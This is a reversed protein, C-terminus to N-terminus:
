VACCLVCCFPHLLSRETAAPPTHTHTHPQTTHPPRHTDASCWKYEFSYLSYLWCMHLVSLPPGFVPVLSVLSLQVLFLTVLLLRYLEESMAAIWRQFSLTPTHQKHGRTLFAQDAIDQYRAVDPSVSRM